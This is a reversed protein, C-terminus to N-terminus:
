ILCMQICWNDFNKSTFKPLQPHSPNNNAAMIENVLNCSEQSEACERSNYGQYLM